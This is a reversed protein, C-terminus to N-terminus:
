IKNKSVNENLLSTHKHILIINLEKIRLFIKINQLNKIQFFFQKIQQNTKNYLKQNSLM